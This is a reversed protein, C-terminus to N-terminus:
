FNDLKDILNKVAQERNEVAKQREKSKREAEHRQIEEQQNKEALAKQNSILWKRHNIEKRQKEKLNFEGSEIWYLIIYIVSTLASLVVTARKMETNFYHDVLNYNHFTIGVVTSFVFFSVAIQYLNDFWDKNEEFDSNHVFVAFSAFIVSAVIFLIKYDSGNFFYEICLIVAAIVIVAFFDFIDIKM